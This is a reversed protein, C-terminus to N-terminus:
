SFFFVIWALSLKLFFQHTEEENKRASEQLESRHSRRFCCWLVVEQPLAGRERKRERERETARMTVKTKSMENRHQRGKPKTKNKVCGHHKTQKNTHTHTHLRNTPYGPVVAVAM